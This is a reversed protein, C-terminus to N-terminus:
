SLCRPNQQPAPCRLPYEMKLFLGMVPKYVQGSVPNLLQHFNLFTNNFNIVHQAKLYHPLINLIYELLFTQVLISIDKDPHQHYHHCYEEKIEKFAGFFTSPSSIRLEYCLLAPANFINNYSFVIYCSTQSVPFLKFCIQCCVRVKYPLIQLCFPTFIVAFGSFLIWHYTFKKKEHPGIIKRTKYPYEKHPLHLSSFYPATM